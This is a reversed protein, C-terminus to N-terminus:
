EDYLTSGEPYHRISGEEWKAELFAALRQRKAALPTEEQLWTTPYYVRLARNPVSHRTVGMPLRDRQRLAFRIIDEQRFHPFLVLVWEEGLWEEPFEVQDERVRHLGPDTVYLHTLRRMPRLGARARDSRLLAISRKGPSRLCALVERDHLAREADKWPMSELSVGDIREVKGALMELSMGVVLHHWPDLTITPSPYPVIQVLMHPFGLRRAATVRSAGDLVILRHGGDETRGVIPPNKLVREDRLREMIREVRHNEVDEHLILSRVPVVELQPLSRKQV